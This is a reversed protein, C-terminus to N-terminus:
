PRVKGKKPPLVKFNIPWVGDTKFTGDFRTIRVWATHPTMTAAGVAERGLVVRRPNKM